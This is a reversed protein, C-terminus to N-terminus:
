DEQSGGPILSDLLNTLLGTGKEVAPKYVRDTLYDTGKRVYGPVKKLGRQFPYSIERGQAQRRQKLVKRTNYDRQQFEALRQAHPRAREMFAQRIEPTVKSNYLHSGAAYGLGGGGLLAMIYKLPMNKSKKGSLKRILHYVAMLGLGTAAGGIGYNMGKAHAADAIYKQALLRRNQAPNPTYDGVDHQAVKRISDLAIQKTNSM